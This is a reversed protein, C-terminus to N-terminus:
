NIFQLVFHNCFKCVEVIPHIFIRQQDVQAIREFWQILFVLGFAVQDLTALTPYPQLGVIHISPDVESPLTIRDNDFANDAQQNPYKGIMSRLLNQISIEMEDILDTQFLVQRGGTRISQHRHDLLHSEIGHSEPRFLLSSGVSCCVETDPGYYSEGGAIAKKNANNLITLLFFPHSLHIDFSCVM